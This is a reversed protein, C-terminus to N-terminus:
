LDGRQSEYAGVAAARSPCDPEHGIENDDPHPEFPGRDTVRAHCASCTWRTTPMPGFVPLEHTDPERAEILWVFAAAGPSSQWDQRAPIELAQAIDDWTRGAGRATEAHERMQGFAVRWALLAARVGALPDNLVARTLVEFGDVPERSESAGFAAVAVNRIAARLQASAQLRTNQDPANM